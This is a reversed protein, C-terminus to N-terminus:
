FKKSRDLDLLHPGGLQVREILADPEPWRPLAPSPM